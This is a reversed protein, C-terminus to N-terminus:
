KGEKLKEPEGDWWGNNLRFLKGALRGPRPPSTHCPGPLNFDAVMLKKYKVLKPANIL